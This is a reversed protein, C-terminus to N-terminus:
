LELHVVAQSGRDAVKKFGAKLFTNLSGMYLDVPHANETSIDPYAEVTCAGQGRAHDVAGEILVSMMGGRVTGPAYFCVISWVPRDDVRKLKPSRELSAFDERPAISVWGAVKGNLYAMIGPVIGGDVLAKMAKRNGGKRGANFERRTVRWFMCWCDGCVSNDAFLEVFDDWTAPMLPKFTYDM